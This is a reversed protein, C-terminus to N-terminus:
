RANALARALEADFASQFTKDVVENGLKNLDIFKRYNVPDVYLIM